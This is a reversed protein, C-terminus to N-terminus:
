EGDGDEEEKRRMQSSRAVTTRRRRMTRVWRWRSGAMNQLEKNGGAKMCARHTAASPAALWGRLIKTNRQKYTKVQQLVKVMDQLVKVM